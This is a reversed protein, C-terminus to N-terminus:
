IPLLYIFSESSFKVIIGDFFFLGSYMFEIGIPSEFTFKELVQNPSSKMMHLIGVNPIDNM